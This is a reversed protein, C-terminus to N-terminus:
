PHIEGRFASLRMAANLIQDALRGQTVSAHIVNEAGFALGLESSHLWDISQVAPNLARALRHLTQKGDKGAETACILLLTRGQKIQTEVKARGFAVAGSKRALGLLDICRQALQRAVDELLQEPLEIKQRAARAFSNKAIAQRLSAADARVWLGRGPLKEAVDFVLQGQPSVVFRILADRPLIEGSVICRREPTRAESQKNAPLISTRGHRHFIGAGNKRHM